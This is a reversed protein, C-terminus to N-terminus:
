ALGRLELPPWKAITPTHALSVIFRNHILNRSAHMSPWGM